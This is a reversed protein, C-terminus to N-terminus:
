LWEKFYPLFLSEHVKCDKYYWNHWANFYTRFEDFGAKDKKYCDFVYGSLSWGRKKLEAYINNRQEPTM